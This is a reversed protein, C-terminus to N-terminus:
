RPLSRGPGRQRWALDSTGVEGYPVVLDEKDLTYLAFRLLALKNYKTYPFATIVRHRMAIETEEDVIFKVSYDATDDSNERVMKIQVVFKEDGIFNDNDPDTLWGTVELM